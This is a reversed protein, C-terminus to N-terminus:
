AIDVQMAQIESEMKRKAGSLAANQAGLEAVRDSTEHLESEAAKRSRESTDVQSRLEEIEATLVSIRRELAASQERAQKNISFISIYM